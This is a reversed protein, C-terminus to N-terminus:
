STLKNGASTFRAAAVSDPTCPCFIKEGLFPSHEVQNAAQLLRTYEDETLYPLRSNDENNLRSVVSVHGQSM